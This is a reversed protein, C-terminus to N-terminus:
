EWNGSTNPAYMNGFKLLAEPDWSDDYKAFRKDGFKGMFVKRAVGVEVVDVMTSQYTLTDAQMNFIKGQGYPVYQLSDVNWGLLNISDKASKFLTDRRIKETNTPDDPDGFAQIIMFNGTKLVYSLTDFNKAYHGTISRYMEQAQRIKSLKEIVATERKAKEANFAIPEQISTYLLYIGLLIGLVLLINIILRM